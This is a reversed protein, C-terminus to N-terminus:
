ELGASGSYVRSVLTHDVSVKLVVGLRRVFQSKMDGPKKIAKLLCLKVTIIALCM